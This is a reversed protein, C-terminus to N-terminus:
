EDRSIVFLQIDMVTRMCLKLPFAVAVDFRQLLHTCHSSMVLVHVQNERFLAMVAHTWTRRHGELLLLFNKDL